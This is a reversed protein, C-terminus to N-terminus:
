PKHYGDREWGGGALRFSGVSVQKIPKDHKCKPCAPTPADHKILKEFKHGCECKYEYIPMVISGVM